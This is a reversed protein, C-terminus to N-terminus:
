EEEVYTLRGSPFYGCGRIANDVVDLVHEWTHGETVIMVKCGGQKVICVTKDM